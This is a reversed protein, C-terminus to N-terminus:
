SECKAPGSVKLLLRIRDGINPREEKGAESCVALEALHLLPGRPPRHNDSRGTEEDTSTEKREIAQPRDDRAIRWFVTPLKSHERGKAEENVQHQKNKQPPEPRGYAIYKPQFFQCRTSSASFVSARPVFARRAV